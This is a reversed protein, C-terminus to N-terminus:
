SAVRDPQPAHEIVKSRSRELEDVEELMMRMLTLPSEDNAGQGKVVIASFKPHFYPAAKYAFDGAIMLYHTLREEAHTLGLDFNAAEREVAARKPGNAMGMAVQWREAAADRNAKAVDKWEIAVEYFYSMVEHLVKRPVLDIRGTLLFTMEREKEESFKRNAPRTIGTMPDFKPQRQNGKKEGGLKAHGKQFPRGPGGRKRRGAAGRREGKMSGAM